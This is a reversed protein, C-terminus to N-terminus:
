SPHDSAQSYSGIVRDYAVDQHEEVMTQAREEDRDRIADLIAQHGRAMSERFDTSAINRSLLFVYIQPRLTAWFNLLRQHGSARYVLDHFRLDLEAAEQEGIGEQSRTVMEDVIGQMDAVDTASARECAYAAALRELVRRLSYVEELDRHSLRAVFSRGNSRNIVLGERELQTLAERVPGRSVGMQEALQSERLPEEPAFQGALIARRLRNVVEDSLTRRTPPTLIQSLSEIAVLLGKSRSSPRQRRAHRGASRLGVCRADNTGNVVFQLCSITLLKRRARIRASNDCGTLLCSLLQQRSQM